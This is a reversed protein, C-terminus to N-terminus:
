LRFASPEFGAGRLWILSMLDIVQHHKQKSTNAVREGGDKRRHRSHFAVGDLAGDGIGSVASVVGRGIVFELDVGGTLLTPDGPLDLM